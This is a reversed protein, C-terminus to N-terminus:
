STNENVLNEAHRVQNECQRHVGCCISNHLMCSLMPQLHHHHYHAGLRRLTASFLSPPPPKLSSKSSPMSVGPFPIIVCGSPDLSAALLVPQREHRRQCTAGGSDPCLTKTIQFSLLICNPHHSVCPKWIQM